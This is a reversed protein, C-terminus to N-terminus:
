PRLQRNAYPLLRAPHTERFWVLLDFDDALPAAPELELEGEVYSEDVNM